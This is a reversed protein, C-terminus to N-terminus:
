LMSWSAKKFKAIRQRVRAKMDQMDNESLSHPYYSQAVEPPAGEPIPQKPILLIQPGTKTPSILFVVPVKTQPASILGSVHLDDIKIDQIISSFYDAESSEAVPTEPKSWTIEGKENLLYIGHISISLRSYIIELLNIQAELSEGTDNLELAQATKKLESLARELSEDIYDAVLRATTLRDQLMTETARNVAQMGLSSFVGVGILLGSATLITIKKGLSIDTLFKM